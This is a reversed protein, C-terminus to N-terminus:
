TKARYARSLRAAALALMKFPKRLDWGTSISFAIAISGTALLALECDAGETRSLLELSSCSDLTSSFDALGSSLRSAM